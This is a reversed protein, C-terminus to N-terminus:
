QGKMPNCYFCCLSFIFFLYNSRFHFGSTKTQLLLTQRRSLTKCRQILISYSSPRSQPPLLHAEKMKDEEWIASFLNIYKLTQRCIINFICIRSSFSILLQFWTPVSCSPSLPASPPLPLPLPLVDDAASPRSFINNDSKNISEFRASSAQKHWRYQRAKWILDRAMQMDRAFLDTHKHNHTPM